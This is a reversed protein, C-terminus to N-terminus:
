IYLSNTEITNLLITNTPIMIDGMREHIRRANIIADLEELCDETCDHFDSHKMVGKSTVFSTLGLMTVPM